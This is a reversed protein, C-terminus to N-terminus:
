ESHACATGVAVNLKDAIARITWGLARLRRAEIRKQEKNALWEERPVSGALRRALLKRLKDRSRREVAGVITQLNNQEEATIALVDILADNSWRYRPDVDSGAFPIREGRAAAEARSLASSVCSVVDADSWGPSFEAALELVEAKLNRVLCAQALFCAGLFVFMDRQGPPLGRECGRMQALRRLDGLRDWALQSPILPSGSRARGGPVAVLNRKVAERAAKQAADEEKEILRRGRQAALDDRTVPLLESAFVDFDYGVVGCPLLQGGGTPTTARHVVRVPSDSRSSSTGELRLVRSADMALADAGFGALSSNLQRQVAHWRPLTGSPVPVSFLWKAQLGRGSFVVVSPPPIGGDDCAMLLADVQAETSMAALRSVKYVDLDAFAVPLRWLNVVQRNPKRFEGQSIWVDTRGRMSAVAEPLVALKHSTQRMLGDPGASLLSVFGAREVDHYLFPEHCEFPLAIQASAAV